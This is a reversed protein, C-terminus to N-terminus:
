LMELLTEDISNWVRYLQEMIETKM